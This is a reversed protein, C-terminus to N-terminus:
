DDRLGLRVRRLAEIHDVPVNGLEGVHMEYPIKEGREYVQASRVQKTLRQPSESPIERM